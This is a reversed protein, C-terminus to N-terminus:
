NKNRINTKKRQRVHQEEPLWSRGILKYIYIYVHTHIYIYIYIYTDWLIYIYIIMITIMIMILIRIILYVFLYIFLYIYIYIYIHASPRPHAFRRLLDPAPLSCSQGRAFQRDAWGARAAERALAGLPDTKM